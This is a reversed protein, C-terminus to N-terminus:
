VLEQVNGFTRVMRDAATDASMPKYNKIREPDYGAEELLAHAYKRLAPREVLEAPLEAECMLEILAM